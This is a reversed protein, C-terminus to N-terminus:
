KWRYMQLIVVDHYTQIHLCTHAKVFEGIASDSVTQYSVYAETQMLTRTLVCVVVSGDNESVHYITHEPEIYVVSFLFSLFDM